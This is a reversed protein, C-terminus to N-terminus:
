TSKKIIVFPGGIVLKNEKCLECLRKGNDNMIGCRQRERGTTDIGVRASLDGLVLLM